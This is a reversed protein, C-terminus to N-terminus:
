SQSKPPSVVAIVASGLAAALVSGVLVSLKAVNSYSGDPFAQDAMLLAIESVDELTTFQGDM